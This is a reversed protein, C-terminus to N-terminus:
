IGNSTSRYSTTPSEILANEESEGSNQNSQSPKCCSGQFVCASLGRTFLTAFSNIITSIWIKGDVTRRDTQSAYFGTDIVIGPLVGFLYPTAFKVLNCAKQKRSLPKPQPQDVALRNFATNRISKDSPWCCELSYDIVFYLLLAVGSTTFTSIYWAFKNFQIDPDGSTLVEDVVMGSAAGFLFPIGQRIAFRAICKADPKLDLRRLIDLHSSPKKQQSVETQAHASASNEDTAIM